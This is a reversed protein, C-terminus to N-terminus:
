PFLLSRAPTERARAVRPRLLGENSARLELCGARAVQSLTLTRVLHLPHFQARQVRATQLPAQGGRKSPTSELLLHVIFDQEDEASLSPRDPSRRSSSTDHGM